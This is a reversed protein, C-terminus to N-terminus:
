GAPPEPVSYVTPAPTAQVPAPAPAPAPATAQPPTVVSINSPMIAPSSQPSKQLASAQLLNGVGISVPKGVIVAGLIGLAWQGLVVLDSFANQVLPNNGDRWIVILFTALVSFMIAVVVVSFLKVVFQFTAETMDLSM